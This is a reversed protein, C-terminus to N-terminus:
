ASGGRHPPTIDGCRLVAGRRQTVGDPTGRRAVGSRGDTLQLPDRQVEEADIHARALWTPAKLSLAGTRSQLGQRRVISLLTEEYRLHFRPGASSAIVEAHDSYRMVRVRVSFHAHGEKSAM